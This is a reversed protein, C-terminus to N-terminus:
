GSALFVFVLVWADTEFLVAESVGESLMYHAGAAEAVDRITAAKEM